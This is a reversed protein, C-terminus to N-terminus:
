NEECLEEAISPLLELALDLPARREAYLVKWAVFDIERLIDCFGGRTVYSLRFTWRLTTWATPRRFRRSKV